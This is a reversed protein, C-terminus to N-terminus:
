RLSKRREIRFAAGSGGAVGEANQLRRYVSTEPTLRNIFQMIVAKDPHGPFAVDFVDEDTAGETRAKKIVGEIWSISHRKIGAVKDCDNIVHVHESLEFGREVYQECGWGCRACKFYSGKDRFDNGGCKACWCVVVVPKGTGDRKYYLGSKPHEGLFRHCSECLTQLLSDRTEWPLRSEYDIHHVHLTSESDGCAVCTWGDRELIQLRTKQWKPSQYLDNNM